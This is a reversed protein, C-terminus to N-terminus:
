NETVIVRLNLAALLLTSSTCLLYCGGEIWMIYKELIWRL